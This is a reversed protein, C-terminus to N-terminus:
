ETLRSEGTLTHIALTDIHPAEDESGVIWVNGASPAVGAFLVDDLFGGKTPNPSSAITWSNGDFHLLLTMQHGSGDAAFFSGFAWIDRPSVATIGFLRNSQSTSNPGVNPSPVVTWQTGDFHEILTTTPDDPGAQQTGVAWVNNPALATVAFLEDSVGVRPLTTSQWSSGDFHFVLPAADNDLFGSYGVSWVDNTADSSIGNLFASGNLVLISTPTWATGDFHEFLFFLESVSVNVLNGVAWIDDASIGTAGTLNSEDGAAFKPSPFMSWQTGNWKEIIQNPIGTGGSGLVFGV